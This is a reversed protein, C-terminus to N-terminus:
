AGRYRRQKKWNNYSMRKRWRGSVYKMATEVMVSMVNIDVGRKRAWYAMENFREGPDVSYIEELVVGDKGARKLRVKLEAEIQVPTEFYASRSMKGKGGTYGTEIHDSPWNGVSLESLWPCLWIVQLRCMKIDSPAYWDFGPCGKPCRRRKCGTLEENM